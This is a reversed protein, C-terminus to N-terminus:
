NALKGQYFEELVLTGAGLSCSRKAFPSLEVRVNDRVSPMAVARGIHRGAKELLNGALRDGEGGASLVTPLDIRDLEGDARTLISSDVGKAIAERAQSVM